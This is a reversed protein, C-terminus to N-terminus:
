SIFNKITYFIQDLFFLLGINLFAAFILIFKANIFDSITINNKPEDFYIIKIIRLYYYASVVSFLVAIIPVIKMSSGLTILLVYFKSFFGLFPPIGANSFILVSFCLAIFPNTKALGALSDIAFIKDNEQDNELDNKSKLLNLFAFIGISIISYVVAYFIAIEFGDKVLTAVSILIFAVHSISSYAFLRKLNKQFMAGFSGIAFSVISVFILIKNMGVFPIISIYFFKILAIISVFKVSTAFFSAVITPSGEYVDPSWMHFPAASIKFFLAVIVLVFGFIVAIPMLTSPNIDTKHYLEYLTSFNTTGAFGYIMSIGFLLIGSAVSGLIFYKIGSESSKNSSRNLTALLYLPLSQLELGLYFTIFDNASILLMGGVTSIMLLALFETSIAHISIVFDLSIFVIIVLLFVAILKTFCIFNNNAFMQNFLFDTKSFNLFLLYITSGCILLSILHSALCFEPKKKFFVDLMLIILAGCFLTVEPLLVSFNM